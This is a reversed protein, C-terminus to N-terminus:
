AGKEFSLLANQLALLLEELGEERQMKRAELRLLIRTIVKQLWEKTVVRKRVGGQMRKHKIKIHEQTCFHNLLVRNTGIVFKSLEVYEMTHGKKIYFRKYGRAHLLLRMPQSEVAAFTDRTTNQSFFMRVCVRVCFCFLGQM